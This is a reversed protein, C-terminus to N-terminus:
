FTGGAILDANLQGNARLQVNSLNTANLELVDIGNSAVSLRNTGPLYLGTGTDSNFSFSPNTVTGDSAYFNGTTGQSLISLTNGDSLIIASIGTAFSLPAALSGYLSFNINYASYGTQNNIIYIQTIAPLTVDLDTTRSGTSAVYNQITPALSVLSLSSGPISDVDYTASSYIVSSPRSLGVTFYNGTSYDNVVIASNAPFISTNTAGDITYGSPPTLTLVGTGNNRVMIFWGVHLTSSDPLDFNGTGSTWVYALSRSDEDLTPATSVEEVDTATELRGFHNTLGSGVLSAADAISTGAGYTFNAYLGDLTSNDVLYFYRATGVAITVSQDGSSDVVVFDNDGVNRFLIDTGVSGQNGYPLTITLGTTTATCDMIRAAPVDTSGPVINGPWALVQDTGFTLSYYSVDTPQVVDGTFPSTYTTM